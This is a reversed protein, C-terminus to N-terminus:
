FVRQKHLKAAEDELLRQEIQLSKFNEELDDIIEELEKKKSRLREIEGTDTSCVLLRSRAVPEVIASVHGGYRSVSWRYHNEPTWFDLIGLKSVEDAKQDTERSGIYSHELAFQSTLVEKVADPSDFVQDLRSSIGLKRMEESIQFPEKHRDENRVYNLVPVDFLRLNKVLFDRDDPDQTIFSFLKKFLKQKVRKM